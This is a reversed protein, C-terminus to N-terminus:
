TGMEVHINQCACLSPIRVTRTPKIDNVSPAVMIANGNRSIAASYDCGLSALLAWETLLSM